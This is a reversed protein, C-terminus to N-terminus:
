FNRLGFLFAESAKFILLNGAILFSFSGHLACVTMYFDLTTQSQMDVDHLNTWVIKTARSVLLWISFVGM